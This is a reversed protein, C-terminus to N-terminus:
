GGFFLVKSLVVVDVKLGAHVEYGHLFSTIFGTGLPLDARRNLPIEVQGNPNTQWFHDGHKRVIKHLGASVVQELLDHTLDRPSQGPFHLFVEVSGM